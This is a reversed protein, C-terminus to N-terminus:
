QLPLRLEKWNAFTFGPPAEPLSPAWTAQGNMMMYDYLTDLHPPLQRIAYDQLRYSSYSDIYQQLKEGALKVTAADADDSMLTMAYHLHAGFNWNRFDNETARRFYAQAQELDEDTRGVMELLKGYFYLATPDNSRIEVAQRLNERAMHFMDYYLAQIGNDRRLEAMLEKYRRSDILLAADPDGTAQTQIATQILKEAHAIRRTLRGPEGLFGLAARNDKVSMDLLNAYLAKIEHVDYQAQQIVQFALEDAENERSVDWDLNLRPHAAAVAAAGAAAGVIAGGDSNIQGGVVAGAATAALIKWARRREQREIYELTGYHVMSKDRWHGLYVHAMEHALVYALQAENELASVLGTSLYITGTALTEASPVPHVVLRFTFLEASDEPVLSLGLRNVYSQILLNDYLTNRDHRRFRDERVVVPKSQPSTNIHYARYMHQRLQEQYHNEVAERFDEDTAYLEEALARVRARAREQRQQSPPRKFIKKIGKPQALVPGALLLTLLSLILTLRTRM